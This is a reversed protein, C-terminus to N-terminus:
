FTVLIHFAGYKTFNPMHIQLDQFKISKLKETKMIYSKKRKTESLCSVIHWWWAQLPWQKYEM